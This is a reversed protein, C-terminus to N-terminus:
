HHADSGSLTGPLGSFRGSLGAIMEIAPAASGAYLDLAM